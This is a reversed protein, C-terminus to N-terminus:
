SNIKYKYNIIFNKIKKFCIRDIMNHYALKIAIKVKKIKYYLM